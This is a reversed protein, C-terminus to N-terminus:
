ARAAGRSKFRRAWALGVLGVSMMAWASPEPVAQVSHGYHLDLNLAGLDQQQLSVRLGLGRNFASVGEATLVLGSLSYQARLAGDMGYPTAPNFSAPGVLQGFSWLAVGTLTFDEAATGQYANRHGAIDATISKAGIDIVLNSVTVSGGALLQNQPSASLTFGGSVTGALLAGSVDDRTVSSVVMGAGVAQGTIGLLDIMEGQISFTAPSSVLGIPDSRDAPVCTLYWCGRFSEQGAVDTVVAAQAVSNVVCALAAAALIRISKSM